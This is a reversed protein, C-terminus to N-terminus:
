THRRLESGMDFGTGCGAQLAHYEEEGQGGTRSHWLQYRRYGKQPENLARWNDDVLGMFYVHGSDPEEVSNFYGWLM